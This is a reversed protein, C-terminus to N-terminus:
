EVALKRRTNCTLASTSEDIQFVHVEYEGPDVDEFTTRVDYGADVFAPVKLAAAVDPRKTIRSAIAYFKKTEGVLELGVVPPVSQRAADAAWGVLVATDDRKVTTVEAAPAPGVADIACSETVAPSCLASPATTDFHELALRRKQVAREAASALPAASEGDAAPAPERCGLALAPVGAFAAFRCVRRKTMIGAPM